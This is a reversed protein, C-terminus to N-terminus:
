FNCDIDKNKIQTIMILAQSNMNLIIEAKGFRNFVPILYDRPWHQAAFFWLRKYTKGTLEKKMNNCLTIPDGMHTDPTYIARSKDSLFINKVQNTLTFYTWTSLARDFALIDGDQFEKNLIELSAYGQDDPYNRSNLILNFKGISSVVLFILCIIIYFNKISTTNILYRSKNSFGHLWLKTSGSALLACINDICYIVAIITLIYLYYTLRTFIAQKGFASLIINLALPITLLPWLNDKKFFSIIPALFLISIISFFWPIPLIYKEYDFGNNFHSSVSAWNNIIFPGWFDLLMNASSSNTSASVFYYYYLLGCVIYTAFIKLDIRKNDILLYLLIGPFIVIATWSSVSYIILSCIFIIDILRTKRQYYFSLIYTLLMLFGDLAYPKFERTLTIFDPGTAYLLGALIGFFINTFKRTVFFIFIATFGSLLCPIIRFSFENIGLVFISTKALVWESALLQHGKIMYPILDSISQIKLISVVRWAEDLWLAPYPKTPWRFYLTICFILLVSLISLYFKKNLYEIITSKKM